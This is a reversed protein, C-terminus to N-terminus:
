SGYDVIELYTLCIDPKPICCHIEVKILATKHIFVIKAKEGIVETTLASLYPLSFILLFAAGFPVAQM